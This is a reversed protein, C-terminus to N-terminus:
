VDVLEDLANRYDEHQDEPVDTLDLVLLDNRHIEEGRADVYVGAAEDTRFQVVKVTDTTIEMICGETTCTQSSTDQANPVPLGIANFHEVVEMATPLEPLQGPPADSDISGTALAEEPAAAPEETSGDDGCGATVLLALLLATLLRRM